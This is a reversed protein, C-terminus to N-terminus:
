LPRPFNFFGGDGDGMLNVLVVVLGVVLLFYFQIGRTVYLAPMLYAKAFVGQFIAYYMMETIGQAGPLPLMDVAIYVSAQLIMVTLIGTGTQAFGLYVLATLLFVSIRQVFTFIVVIGIKRRRSILFRVAERYGDIFQDIKKKRDDSEKLVRIRVLIRELRYIIGKMGGPALMVALLVAVLILNLALGLFYLGVYGQLYGKLPAYWFMLIGIGMVVLVFKYILAVTMLVVSSDSLSNGDKKMYYLQMPQGGTASPTIGSYFFGIFSYSICRLVGERRISGRRDPMSRLLYWIMMGEVSVFFLATLVALMLYPISMKRLAAWIQNWDQGHIVAYFTLLMIVLFVCIDVARKRIRQNGDASM